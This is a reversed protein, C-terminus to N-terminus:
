NDVNKQREFVFYIIIIEIFQKHTVGVKSPITLIQTESAEVRLLVVVLCKKNFDCNGIEIVIKKKIM